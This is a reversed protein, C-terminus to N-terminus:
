LYILENGSRYCAVIDERGSGIMEAYDALPPNVATPISQPTVWTGNGTYIQGTDINRYLNYPLTAVTKCLPKTLFFGIPELRDMLFGTARVRFAMEWDFSDLPKFINTYEEKSVHVITLYTNNTYFVALASNDILMSEYLRAPDPMLKDEYHKKIYPVHPAFVYPGITNTTYDYYGIEVLGNNGVRFLGATRENEFSNFLPFIADRTMM